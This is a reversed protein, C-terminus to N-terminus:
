LPNLPFPPDHYQIDRARWKGDSTANLFDPVEQTWFLPGGQQFVAIALLGADQIRPAAYLELMDLTRQSFSLSFVRDYVM